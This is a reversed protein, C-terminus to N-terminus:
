VDTDGPPVEVWFWGRLDGEAFGTAQDQPYSENIAAMVEDDIMEEPGHCMQCEAKLRIPLLAGLEGDPGAVYTPDEDLAAVFPEAWAPALNVPNRLKHSTRGIEIGYLDSVHAAVMPAKERCVTIGAAPGGEDLAASLEGMLESALANTATLILEQQAKQTENMLGPLVKEWQAPAVEEAIEVPEEAPGACGFVNLLGLVCIVITARM